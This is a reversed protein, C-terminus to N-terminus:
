RSSRAVLTFVLGTTPIPSSGVPVHASHSRSTAAVGGTASSTSSAPTSCRSHSAATPSSSGPIRRMAATSSRARRRIRDREGVPVVAVLGREAVGLLPASARRELVLRGPGLDQHEDELRGLAGERHQRRVPHQEPEVCARRMARRAHQGLQEVDLGATPRSRARRRREAAAPRWPRRRGTRGRSAPRRRSGARWARRTRAARQGVPPAATRRRSTVRAETAM